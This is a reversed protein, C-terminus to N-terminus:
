EAPKKGKARMKFERRLFKAAEAATFPGHLRGAQVDALGKALEADLWRKQEPTYEDGAEAEAPPKPTLVIKGRSVSAEVFDGNSIGVATRMASPLTVQGKRDIRVTTTM